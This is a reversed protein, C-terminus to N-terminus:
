SPPVPCPVSPYPQASDRTYSAAIGQCVIMMEMFPAIMVLAAANVAEMRKWAHVVACATSAASTSVFGNLGQKFATKMRWARNLAIRKELPSSVFGVRVLKGAALPATRM